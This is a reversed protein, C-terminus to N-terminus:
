FFDYDEYEAEVVWRGLYNVYGWKGTSKDRTPYRWTDYHRGHTWQIGALDAHEEEMFTPAIVMVGKRDICGWRGATKVAAYSMPEDGKFVTAREYQPEFKWKGYYDVYGWKGDAPNQAPYLWKGPEDGKEWEKGAAEAEQSTHFINRVVMQGRVDICGWFRDQKVVAFRRFHGQFAYAYQFQPAIQWGGDSNKYGYLKTSPQITLTQANTDLIFFLALFPLLFLKKM